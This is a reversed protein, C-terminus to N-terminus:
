LFFGSTRGTLKVPSKVLESEPGALLRAQGFCKITIVTPGQRWPEGDVQM